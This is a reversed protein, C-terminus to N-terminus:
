VNSPIAMSFTMKPELEKLAKLTEKFVGKVEM